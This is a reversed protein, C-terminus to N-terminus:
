EASHYSPDPLQQGPEPQRTDAPMQPLEADLSKIRKTLIELQLDSRGRIYGIQEGRKYGERLKTAYYRHLQARARRGNRRVEAIIAVTCAPVTIVSVTWWLLDPNQM